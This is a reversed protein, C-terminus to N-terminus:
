KSMRKKFEVVRTYDGTRAAEERLRDLMANSTVSGIGGGLGVRKEPPPTSIRKSVKIEKEIDAIALAFAIPNQINKLENLKASSRGLAYIVKAPEKTYELILGQQAISLNNVVEDESDIFDPVKLVAKAEEYHKIREDWSAKQKEAEIAQRVQSIQKQQQISAWTMFQAEFAQTDYDCGELTPKEDPVSQSGEHEIPTELERIRAELEKNRRATEKFAKRFEKIKPLKEEELEALQEATLPEPEGITIDVEEPELEEPEETLEIDELEVEEIYDDELPESM